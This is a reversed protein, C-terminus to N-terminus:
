CFQTTTATSAFRASEKFIVPAKARRGSGRRSRSWYHALGTEATRSLAERDMWALTLV